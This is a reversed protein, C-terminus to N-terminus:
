FTKYIIDPPPVNLLALVAIAIAALATDRVTRVYRSQLFPESEFQFSLFWARSLEWLGLLVSSGVLITVWILAVQAPRIIRMLSGMQTWSSWFWLLTLTCWTFTLGRALVNYFWNRSIAEYEEVGLARTMMVQYLKTLSVGLGQLVGFVIFMSTQGHWLGVLFFTVFFAFVSLFPEIAPSPWRRICAMMVPSYVYIRVWMSLTIHWRNWFIMYNESSFPRNFNEPLQLRLFRAIGIVMDIYGSFNCYLYFPYAAAIIVGAWVRQGATQTASLSNLASAQIMALFLSLVNVKFFGVIIRDLARGAVRITLPLPESALQMGAFSKYRQIPGSVLTTFNLTYNLYSVFGIKDPLTTYRSTSDLILHLVRFFIYSLGLTVYPHQLFLSSPIFAYRKLWVFALVGITVPVFPGIIAGRVLRMSVFGFLLFAALPIFDTLHLSFFGLFVISSALLVFQRWAVARSINFVVAVCLAYALFQVSAGGLKLTGRPGDSEARM